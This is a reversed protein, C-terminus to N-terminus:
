REKKDPSVPVAKIIRALYHTGEKAKGFVEYDLIYPESFTGEEKIRERVRALDFVELNTSRIWGSEPYFGESSHPYFYAYVNGGEEEKFRVIMKEGEHIGLSSFDEEAACFVAPPMLVAAAMIGAYLKWVNKM